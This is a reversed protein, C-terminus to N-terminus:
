REGGPARDAVPDESRDDVIKLTVTSLREPRIARRVTIVERLPQEVSPEVRVVYGGLMGWAPSHWAPDTGLRVAQGPRVGSGRELVGRYLGSSGVVELHIPRGAGPDSAAPEGPEADLVRADLTESAQDGVTGLPILRSTLRPVDPAVHGVLRDGDVVAVTGGRVGNRSGVNLTLVGGSRAPNHRVVQASRPTWYDGLGLDRAQQLQALERELQEVRLRSSHWRGRYTDRERQLLEVSSPDLVVGQDRTPRVWEVAGAAAHRLPTLPLAIISGLDSTWGTLWRTPLLALGLVLLSALVIGREPQIFRAM